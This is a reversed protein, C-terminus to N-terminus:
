VPKPVKFQRWACLEREVATSALGGVLKEEGGTLKQGSVRSREEAAWLLIAADAGEGPSDHNAGWCAKVETGRWEAREKVIGMDVVFASHLGRVRCPKGETAPLDNSTDM